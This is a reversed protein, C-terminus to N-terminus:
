ARDKKDAKVKKRKTTKPAPAEEEDDVAVDEMKRKSAKPSKDSNQAVALESARAIQECMKQLATSESSEAKIREQLKRWSVPGWISQVETVAIRKTQRVALLALKSMEKVQPTSIATKQDLSDTVM